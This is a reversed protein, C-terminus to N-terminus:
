QYRGWYKPTRWKKPSIAEGSTFDTTSQERAARSGSCSQKVTERLVPDLTSVDFFSRQFVSSPSAHSWFCNLQWFELFRCSTTQISQRTRRRFIVFSLSSWLKISRINTDLFPGNNRTLKVVPVCFSILM